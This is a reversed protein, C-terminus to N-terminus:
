HAKLGILFHITIGVVDRDRNCWHFHRALGTAPTARLSSKLPSQNYKVGERLEDIIFVGKGVWRVKNKGLLLYIFGDHITPEEWVSRPIHGKM